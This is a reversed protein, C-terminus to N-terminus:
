EEGKLIAIEHKLEQITNDLNEIASKLELEKAKELENNEMVQEKLTRLDSETLNRIELLSVCSGKENKLLAYTKM